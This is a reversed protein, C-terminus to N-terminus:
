PPTQVRYYRQPQILAGPDTIQLVGGTTSSNTILTSWTGSAYNSRWQVRYFGLPASTFGLQVNTGNGDITAVKPTALARKVAQLLPDRQGAPQTARWGGGLEWIMVGGLGRNRAYSVKAACAREDEYSVFHDNTSGTNDITLYPAQANTDWFYRSPQYYNSVITDYNAQMTTPANSWTQRPLAAGGTSTGTGGSWVTGYFEIGVGLKNSAVGATIFQKVLGETSPVLGGTSPFTYGGDYIPANFWTVWGPYPGSMEYSLLNIQDFQAQLQAFLSPQWLVATTLLPRPTIGNLATRLTTVFNTFQQGDGADLPEWDLDIGDYGRNTMLNVLNTVFTGRNANSTAGQFGSQSGAGGVSVLVKCGAAHARAVVDASNAPTLVNISTDLSGNANPVASFHIVHSIATFDVNSAPMTGQLWAAYYTTSWLDARALTATFCLVCALLWQARRSSHFRVDAQYRIENWADLTDAFASNSLKSSM